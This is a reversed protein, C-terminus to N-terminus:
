PLSIISPLTVVFFEKFKRISLDKINGFNLFADLMILYWFHAIDPQVSIIIILNSNTHLEMVDSINNTTNSISIWKINATEYFLVDICGGGGEKKKVGGGERGIFHFGWSIQQILPPPCAPM